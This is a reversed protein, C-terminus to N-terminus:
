QHVNKVYTACKGRTVHQATLVSILGTGHPIEEGCGERVVLQFALPQRSLVTGVLNKLDQPICKAHQHKVTDLVLM